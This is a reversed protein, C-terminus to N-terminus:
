VELKLGCFPCFQITLTTETRIRPAVAHQICLAWEYDEGNENGEVCVNDPLSEKCEHHQLGPEERM